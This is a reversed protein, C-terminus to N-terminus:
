LTWRQIFVCTPRTEDALGQGYTTKDHVVAVRKGKFRDAVIAGAVAGQQDDRGGV